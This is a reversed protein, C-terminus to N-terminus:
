EEDDWPDESVDLGSMRRSLASAADGALAESLRERRDWDQPQLPRHRESVMADYASLTSQGTSSQKDPVYPGRGKRVQSRVSSPLRDGVGSLLKQANKNVSREHRIRDYSVHSADRRSSSSGAERSSSSGAESPEYSYVTTEAADFRVPWRKSAINATTSSVSSSRDLQALHAPLGFESGPRSPLHRRTEAADSLLSALNTSKRSGVSRNSDRKSAVSSRTMTTEGGISSQVSSAGSRQSFESLRSATSARSRAVSARSRGDDTRAAWTSDAITPARDPTGRLWRLVESDRQSTRSSTSTHSVVSGTEHETYGIESFHAAGTRDIGSM